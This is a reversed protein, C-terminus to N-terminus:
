VDDDDDAEDDDDPAYPNSRLPLRLAMWVSNHGTACGLLASMRATMGDRGRTVLWWTILAVM